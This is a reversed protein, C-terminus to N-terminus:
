FSFENPLEQLLEKCDKEEKVKISGTQVNYSATHSSSSCESVITMDKFDQSIHFLEYINAPDQLLHQVGAKDVDKKFYSNEMCNMREEESLKKFAMCWLHELKDFYIRKFGLYLMGIKMRKVLSTNGGPTVRNSDPRLVFLLGGPKLLQFAKRCSQVRQKPDALYELFYSFVIIEYFETPLELINVYDGNQKSVFNEVEKVEVRLFDCQFVKREFGPAPCLDIATIDFYRDFKSFPNYCSGVDLLRLKEGDLDKALDLGLEFYEKCKNVVWELRCKLKGQRDGSGTDAYNDKNSVEAPSRSTNRPDWIETALQHM